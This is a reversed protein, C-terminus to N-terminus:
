AYDAGDPTSDLEEQYASEAAEIADKHEEYYLLAAAVQAESMGFESAIMHVSWAHEQAAHALTAVPIRRGRVFPRGDETEETVYKILDVPNAASSSM